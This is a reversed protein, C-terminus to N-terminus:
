VVRRVRARPLVSPALGLAIQADDQQICHECQESRYERECTLRSDCRRVLWLGFAPVLLWAYSLSDLLPLLIGIAGLVLAIGLSIAQGGSNHRVGGVLRRLATATSLQEPAQAYFGNTTVSM